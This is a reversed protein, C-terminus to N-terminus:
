DVLSWIKSNVITKSLYEDLTKAKVFVYSIPFDSGNKEYRRVIYYGGEGFLVGSIEGVELDKIKEGFKTVAEESSNYDLKGQEDAFKVAVKVFDDKTKIMERIKNARNIAVQNATKDYIFNEKIQELTKVNYKNALEKLIIKEMILVKVAASLSNQDNYQNSISNKLDLYDYYEVIDGRAILAPVPFYSSLYRTFSSDFKFQIILIVFIFYLLVVSLVSIFFVLVCKKCGHKLRDKLLLHINKLKKKFSKIKAMRAQARKKKKFIKNRQKEDKAKQKAIKEQEKRKLDEQKKLEERKNRAIKEDEKRKIEQLKEFEKDKKYKIKEAEEKEKLIRKQESKEFEEKEKQIRLEEERKKQLKIAELKKEEDMRKKNREEDERLREEQLNRAAEEKVKQMELESDMRERDEMDDEDKKFNPALNSEETKKNKKVEINLTKPFYIGDMKKPKQIKQEREIELRKTEEMISELVVKRSRAVDKMNAKKIGDIKKDM